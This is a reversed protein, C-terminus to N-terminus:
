EAKQVLNSFQVWVFSFSQLSSNFAFSWAMGGLYNKWREFCPLCLEAGHAHGGLGDPSGEM